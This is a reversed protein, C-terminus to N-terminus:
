TCDVEAHSMQGRVTQPHTLIVTSQAGSLTLRSEAAFAAVDDPHVLLTASSVTEVGNANRVLRRKVDIHCPVTLAAAYKPGYATQGVYTEVTVTDKLFARRIKM